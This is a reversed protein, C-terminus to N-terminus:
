PHLGKAARRIQAILNRQANPSASNGLGDKPLIGAFRNNVIVKLHRSGQKISWPKGCDELAREIEKSLRM